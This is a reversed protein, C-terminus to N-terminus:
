RPHDAGQSRVNFPREHTREETPDLAENRPDLEHQGRGRGIEVNRVLIRACDVELVAVQEREVAKRTVVAPFVCRAYSITHVPGEFSRIQRDSAGDTLAIPEGLTWPNKRFACSKRVM